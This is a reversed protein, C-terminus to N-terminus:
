SCLYFKRRESQQPNPITLREGHPRLLLHEKKQKPSPVARSGFVLHERSDEFSKFFGKQLQTKQEDLILDLQQREIINFKRTQSLEYSFRETVNRAEIKSMGSGDFELVAVYEQASLTTTAIIGILVTVIYSTIKMLM